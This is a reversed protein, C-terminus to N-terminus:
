QKVLEEMITLVWGQFADSFGELNELAPGLHTWGVETDALGKSARAYVDIIKRDDHLAVAVQIRFPQGLGADPAAAFTYTVSPSPHAVGDVVTSRTPMLNGLEALAQDFRARAARVITSLRVDKLRRTEVDEIVNVRNLARGVQIQRQLADKRAQLSPKQSVLESFMFDNWRVLELRELPIKLLCRTALNCLRSDVDDSAVVVTENDIATVLDAHRTTAHQFIPKRVILDHLVAGVQYFTIARWGDLTNEERGHIMEPPSYQHTGVFAKSVQLSTASDDGHPKMVGFDLLMLSAFDESVHINEPKIDRHTFGWNELQMAASALQEILDAINVRPISDLVESLPRGPAVEMAVFLHETAECSGADLIRVMNAHHKDILERERNIRILQAHRGYQEILGPHFVKIVATTEGRRGRLIVASKGHSVYELLKWGGVPGGALLSDAFVKAEAFDM